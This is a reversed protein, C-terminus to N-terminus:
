AGINGLERGSHGRRRRRDIRSMKVGTQLLFRVRSAGSHISYLLMVYARQLTRIILNSASSFMSYCVTVFQYTLGKAEYQPM